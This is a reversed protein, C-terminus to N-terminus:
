SKYRLSFGEEKLTAMLERAHDPGRTELRFHIKTFGVPCDASLRDHYLDLVNARSKGILKTIRALEGPYDEVILDFSLWRETQVLAREIITSIMNVDINGGCVLVVTPIEPDLKIHRSLLAAVGAAGSGEAIMKGSEMMYFVANAVDDDSVVVVDECLEKVYSFTLKDVSKVALGEALTRPHSRTAQVISGKRFSKSMADAAESVVGYVKTKPRLSKLAIATGSILGGGGVPVVVQLESDIDIGMEELQEHIELGCTGQGAIVDEDAYAHIYSAGEKENLIELAKKYAEDYIKGHLIVEAGYNATAVSKILPTGEPMVITSPVGLKGSVYAVAQAHNGASAAVFHQAGEPGEECLKLIKNAAGRVKFSGTNQFTELKLFFPANSELKNKLFPWSRLPTKVAYSQVRQRASLIDDISVSMPAM